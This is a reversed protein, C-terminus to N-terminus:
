KSSEMASRISAVVEEYPHEQGSVLTLCPLGIAKCTKATAAMRPSESGVKDTLVLGVAPVGDDMLLFTLPMCSFEADPCLSRMSVMEVIQFGSFEKQLIMDIYEYNTGNYNLATQARKGFLWDFLGM